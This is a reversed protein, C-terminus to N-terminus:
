ANPASQSRPFPGVKAKTRHRWVDPWWPCDPAPRLASRKQWFDCAREIKGKAQPTPVYRWSVESFRL